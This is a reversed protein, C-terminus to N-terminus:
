DAIKPLLRRGRITLRVGQHKGEPREALGFSILRNIAPGITRDSQRQEPPIADHVATVSALVAPDFQGLARLVISDSRTLAPVQEAGGGGEHNRIAGPATPRLSAASLAKAGSTIETAIPAWWEKFSDHVSGNFHWWVYGCEGNHDDGLRGTARSHFESRLENLAQVLRSETPGATDPLGYELDAAIGDALPLMEALHRDIRKHSGDIAPAHRHWRIFARDPLRGGEGAEVKDRTLEWECKSLHYRHAEIDRYLEPMLVALRRVRHRPPGAIESDQKDIATQWEDLARRLHDAIEPAHLPLLNYRGMIEPHTEHGRAWGACSYFGLLYRDPSAIAIRCRVAFDRADKGGCWDAPGPQIHTSDALMYTRSIPVLWAYPGVRDTRLMLLLRAVEAEDDETEGWFTGPAAGEIKSRLSAFRRRLEDYAEHMWAFHWVSQDSTAHAHDTTSTDAM